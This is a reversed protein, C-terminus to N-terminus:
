APVAIPAAAPSRRLADVVVRVVADSDEDAFSHDGNLLHLDFRDRTTQQWDFLSPVDASPDDRAGISTVPCGVLGPRHRSTELIEFDARIVPEFVAFVSPDDVIVPPIMGQKRLFDLLQPTSARHMGLDRPAGEPGSAALAFLHAAPTHRLALELALEHAVYAGACRGLLATPLPPLDALAALLQAVVPEMRRELPERRRGERGPLLAVAVDIDDPLQAALGRFGATGGGCHPVCVLRARAGDTTRLPAIWRGVQSM